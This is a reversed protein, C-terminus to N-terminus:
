RSRCVTVFPTNAYEHPSARSSLLDGVAIAPTTLGSPLQKAEIMTLATEAALLATCHIGADGPCVFKGDVRAGSRGTVRTYVVVQSTESGEYSYSQELKRILRSRVPPIAVAIFIVPALALVLMYVGCVLVLGRGAWWRDSNPLLQRDQYYVLGGEGKSSREAAYSAHVVPANCWGMFHPITFSNVQSSWWPLVWLFLSMATSLREAAPVFQFLGSMMSIPKGAKSLITILTGRPAGGDALSFVCEASRVSDTIALKNQANFV